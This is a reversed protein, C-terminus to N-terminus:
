EREETEIDFELAIEDASMGHVSEELCCDCISQDKYNYVREGAYVACKCKECRGVTIPERERPISCGTVMPNELM